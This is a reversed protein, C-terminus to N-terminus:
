IGMLDTAVSLDFEKEFWHWIATRQTGKDFGHWVADIECDDNIPIDGFQAWLKKAEKLHCEKCVYEDGDKKPPIMDKANLYRECHICMAACKDCYGDGYCGEDESLWEGCCRCQDLVLDIMDEDEIGLLSVKYDGFVIAKYEKNHWKIVIIM